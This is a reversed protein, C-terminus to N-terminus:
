VEVLEYEPSGFGIDRAHALQFRYPIDFALENLGQGAQREVLDLAAADIAVPDRSVLFGIDPVIKHYEGLCDCDRTIRKLSTIYLARHRVCAVVGWAHEVIKRQLDEYTAGWNYKVADFRCVALCEGCGICTDPDIRAVTGDM